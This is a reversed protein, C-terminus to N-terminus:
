LNKFHSNSALNDLFMRDVSTPVSNFGTFESSHPVSGQVFGRYQQIIDDADHSGLCNAEILSRVIEKMRTKTKELKAAMM